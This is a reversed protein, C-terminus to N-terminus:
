VGTFVVNLTQHRKLKKTWAYLVYFVMSLFYTFFYPVCSYSANTIVAGNCQLAHSFRLMGKAIEYLQLMDKDARSIQLM